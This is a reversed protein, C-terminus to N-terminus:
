KRPNLQALLIVQVALIKWPCGFWAMLPSKLISINCTLILNEIKNTKQDQNMFLKNSSPSLPFQSDVQTLFDKVQIDVVFSLYIITWLNLQYSISIKQIWTHSESRSLTPLYLTYQAVKLPSPSQLLLLVGHRNPQQM